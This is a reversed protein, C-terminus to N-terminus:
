HFSNGGFGFDYLVTCGNGDSSQRAIECAARLVMTEPRVKAVRSMSHELDDAGYIQVM